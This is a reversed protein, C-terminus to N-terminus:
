FMFRLFEPNGRQWDLDSGMTENLNRYEGRFWSRSQIERITNLIRHHCRGVRDGSGCPCPYKNAIRKKKGLLDLMKLCAEETEVRLLRMYDTIIGKQGHPLGGFPLIGHQQKYSYNYLYPVLCNEVFGILTSNRQLAMFLRIPSGLCLSGDPNTHFNRPVKGDISRVMPIERPFKKTARIQIAYTDSIQEFSGHRARFCLDGVLLLDGNRQPRVSLGSYKALLSSIELAGLRHSASAGM